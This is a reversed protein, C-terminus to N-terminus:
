KCMCLMCMYLYVIDNKLYPVLMAFWIKVSLHM